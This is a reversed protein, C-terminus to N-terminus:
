LLMIWEGYLKKEAETMYIEFQATCILQGNADASSEISKDGDLIEHDRCLFMEGESHDLVTTHRKLCEIAHEITLHGSMLYKHIRPGEEIIVPYRNPWKEKLSKIAITLSKCDTQDM